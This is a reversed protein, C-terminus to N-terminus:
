TNENNLDLELYNCFDKRYCKSGDSDICMTEEDFPCQQMSNLHLKAKQLPTFMEIIKAM